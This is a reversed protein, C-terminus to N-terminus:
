SLRCRTARVTDNQSPLCYPSAPPEPPADPVSCAYNMMPEECIVAYSTSCLAAQWSNVNSGTSSSYSTSSQM